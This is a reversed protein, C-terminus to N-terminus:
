QCQAKCNQKLDSALFRLKRRFKLCIKKKQTASRECKGHRRFLYHFPSESSDGCNAHPRPSLPFCSPIFHFVYCDKLKLFVLCFVSCLLSVLLLVLAHPSKHLNWKMVGEMRQVEEMANAKGNIAL